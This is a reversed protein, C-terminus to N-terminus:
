WMFSHLSKPLLRKSIIISIYATSLEIGRGTTERSEPSIALEHNYSQPENYTYNYVCFTESSPYLDKTKRNNLDVAGEAYM